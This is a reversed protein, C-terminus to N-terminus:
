VRFPQIKNEELQLLPVAHEIRYPGIGQREIQSVCGVSGLNEAVDEALQRVYTGKSCKLFFQIDPLALRLLRLDKIIVKRPQREVQKGKRALAYLRRGKHKLASYMPPVQMSEGLYSSFVEKIKEESINEFGKREIVTGQIDGSDTKAGLTLTAAYEKEFSLFRDFLRTCKGLLLVLVGTALPDLTGAHGIKKMGLKRRAFDVVDHSTMGTPKNVILIGDKM